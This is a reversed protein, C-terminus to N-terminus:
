PLQSIGPPLNGGHAKQTLLAHRDVHPNVIAQLRILEAASISDFWAPRAYLLQAVITHVKNCGM